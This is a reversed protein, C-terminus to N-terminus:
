RQWTVLRGPQKPRLAHHGAAALGAALATGSTHGIGLVADLASGLPRQGLLAGVLAALPGIAEGQAAHLLLQCSLATTAKPACTVVARRTADAVIGFARAGILYGALVDDGSPTLGPGRGILGAAADEATRNAVHEEAHEGAHWLALLRESEIGIERSRLRQALRTLADSEPTGAPPRPPRWERAAVVEVRGHPGRWTVTGGGISASARPSRAPDPALETLRRQASTEPIVLACPLRVADDTVVALVSASRSARMYLARPGVGLIEAPQRRGRLVTSIAASAAARLRLETTAM